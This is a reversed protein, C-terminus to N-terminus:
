TLNIPTVQLMADDRARGALEQPDAEGSILVRDRGTRKAQYMAQDARELAAELRDDERLSTVGASITLQYGPCVFSFDAAALAARIRELCDRGQAVSCDPLMLLFEEGGWRAFVDGARLTTKAINAFSRLTEDGIQHGFKDNVNKFRDIDILAICLGGDGPRRADMECRMIPLMARRNILGTLDDREALLRIQELAQRLETRQRLYAQQLQATWSTLVCTGGMTIVGYVFYYLEASRPYDVPDQAHRMLMVCGLLSLLTVSLQITERARFRLVGFLLILNLICLCAGRDPACISYTWIVAIGAYLQQAATLSPDKLRLNLGARMAVYFSTCGFACYLFLMLAQTADILGSRMECYHVVMFCLYSLNALVTQRLRQRQKPEDGFALSSLRSQIEKVSISAM